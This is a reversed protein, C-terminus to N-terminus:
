FDLLLILITILNNMIYLHENELIYHMWVHNVPNLELGKEKLNKKEMYLSYLMKPYDSVKLKDM